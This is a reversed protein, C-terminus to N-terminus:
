AAQEKVEPEDSKKEEVISETEGETAAEESVAETSAEAEKVAEQTVTKEAVPEVDVEQNKNDEVAETPVAEVVEEAPEPLSQASRLILLSRTPGPLLGKLLVGDNTVSLIELNKITVTEHGMRGAMRKGKLVRGPTTSMGISGPARERDSQGHTRPGGHFGHRKVVGAFGKGKSTGTVEVTDGQSFFKQPEIVDGVHFEVDGVKIGAKKGEVSTVELTQSAGDLRVERFFRLPTKIGAKKLLGQQPNKISKTKGFGLQIAWYGDTEQTRVGIVHCTPTHVFTTPVRVGKDTFVQSSVGKTGLIFKQVM